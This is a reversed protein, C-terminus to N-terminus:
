KIFLMEQYTPLPWHDDAVITELEDVVARVAEMAPKVKKACRDAAQKPTIQTFENEVPDAVQRYRALRIEGTKRDIAARIDDITYTKTTM